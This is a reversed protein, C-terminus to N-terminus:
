SQNVGKKVEAFARDLLQSAIHISMLNSLDRKTIDDPLLLGLNNAFDRQVESPKARRTRWAARRNALSADEETAYQEAWSMATDLNLPGESVFRGGDVLTPRLGVVYQGDDVPWLFWLHNGCRDTGLKQCPRYRSNFSTSTDPCRTCIFWVGEVTRLWMSPSRHFLDVDEISFEYDALSANGKERERAAATALTEGELVELERTTLDALTALRHDQTAGVVDLILADRKGPHLRLVRGVMQVYLSASRTPRAIIACSARPENFGETLVMCNVIVDLQGTRFNKKVLQREEYPMAGWVAAARAGVAQFAETFVHTAQVSPVFCITPRDSAHELWSSVVAKVADSTLLAESLSSAALDGAQVRIEQLSLNGVTVMKGIPDVLYEPIMDLIDRHYAVGDWIEGLNSRDDRALTASFGIAPTRRDFCGFYDLVTRYSMATGHHAEDIIVLGVGEIRHLRAAQRLTQVSAVIVDREVHEDREAKVVGVRLHPAIGALEEVTQSALEDRHVLILVKRRQPDDKGGVWMKSLWSFIVTKGTGTPLVIAPRTRGDAIWEFAHDISEQQYPRLTLLDSM